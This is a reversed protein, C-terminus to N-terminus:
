VGRIQVTPVYPKVIEAFTKMEEETFESLNDKCILNGSDKFQQLYYEKAGSIWKAMDAVDTESHIGKVLTTRFEYDINSSMIIDRSEAIAGIDVNPIGTAVPYLTPSAKIDMAVRDVLGCSILSKLKDPVSGNTDLKIKYGLEKIKKMLEPLEPQLLPEGGSIAVGELIGKRKKLFELLEEDNMIPQPKETVLPANHCFPCRFNCGFFFVTCAVTGVYDLLSLKQLGHINM